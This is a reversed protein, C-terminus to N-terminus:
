STVRTKSKSNEKDKMDDDTAEGLIINGFSTNLKIPISGNGSKGNYNHDFKPGKDEDSNEDSDFKINTKNKFSGFSTFITYTAPLDGVPRLNVTSYSVKADLSTLSNDIKIKTASSFELDLKIKGSLKGIEASSYKISVPGDVISEINAKGFEVDVSKVNSLAGTTLSGFKSTLEIEGKYDPLVIAGFENIIKLPNSSPMSIEYNVKTTTKENKSTNVGKISTKFLIDRGSKSDDVNIGDIIRQAVAESNASVEVTVDIKIENKAWTHVQVDGFSNQITLKDSSSVTYSKNVAKNKVFEYKKNNDNQAFINQQLLIFPLIISLLQAIKKM